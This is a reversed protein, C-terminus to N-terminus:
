AQWGPKRKEFFATIGERAEEGEWREVLAKITHDIVADDLRPGLDRALKKAAAVAGPACNLYPSVEAEVAEDLQDAPVAKALLGLEVAEDAGFLRASMFVRRAKAEGMRAIVYPGITAPILGLKTETLGMKLHDAGIAVDCVSAMGVGGGFANGQLAGIVPKPLTNLAMLMEALVRAERGRTEADADMQQRMWGLDGGACFSKGAGTLVVVRVSDDAALRKAALTLEQLMQGSMANHKDPRNLTLTCVGRADTELTITEFM